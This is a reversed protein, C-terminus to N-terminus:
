SGAYTPISRSNTLTTTDPELSVPMPMMAMVMMVMVMIISWRSIPGLGVSSRLPCIGGVGM